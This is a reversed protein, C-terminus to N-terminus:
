CEDSYEYEDFYEKRLLRKSVDYIKDPLDKGNPHLHNGNEDRLDVGAKLALTIKYLLIGDSTVPTMNRDCIMNPLPKNPDM